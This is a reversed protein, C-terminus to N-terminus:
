YVTIYSYDREIAWECLNKLRKLYDIIRQEYSGEHIQAFVIDVSYAVRDFNTEDHRDDLIRSLATMTNSLNMSPPNDTQEDIAVPIRYVDGDRM